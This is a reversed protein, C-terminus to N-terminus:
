PLMVEIPATLVFNGWAIRLTVHRMDKQDATLTLALKEVVSSAKELSVPVLFEPKAKQIQFADVRAARVKAPVFFALSWVAGDASRHLGLYYYGPAISRGGVKLPLQTDLSTWADRGLRWVKGKTLSDFKAPDEYDKKWVPRGYNIFFQGAATDADQDWYLIRTSGAEDVGGGEPIIGKKQQQATAAVAFVLLICLVLNKRKM